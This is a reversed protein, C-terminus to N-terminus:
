EVKNFDGFRFSVAAMDGQIDMRVNGEGFNIHDFDIGNISGLKTALVPSSDLKLVILELAQNVLMGCVGLMKNNQTPSDANAGVEKIDEQLTELVHGLIAIKRLNESAYSKERIEQDLVVQGDFRMGRGSQIGFSSRGEDVIFFYKRIVNLRFEHFVVINFWTRRGDRSQGSTAVKSQNESLVEAGGLLPGRDSQFRQIKPLADITLSTKLIIQDYPESLEERSFLRTEQEEEPFLM